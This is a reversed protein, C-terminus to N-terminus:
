AGTTSDRDWEARIREQYELGDVGKWHESAALALKERQQTLSSSPLAPGGDGSSAALRDDLLRRLRRAEDLSVRNLTQELEQATMDIQDTYRAFYCITCPLGFLGRGGVRM